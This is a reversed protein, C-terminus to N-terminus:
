EDIDQWFDLISGTVGAIVLNAGAVLGIWRHISTWLKRARGGRATEMTPPSAEFGIEHDTASMAPHGEQM